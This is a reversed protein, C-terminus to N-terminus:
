AVEKQKQKRYAVVALSAVLREEMSLDVIPEYHYAWSPRDDPKQKALAAAIRDRGLAAVIQQQWAAHYGCMGGSKLCSTCSESAVILEPHTM